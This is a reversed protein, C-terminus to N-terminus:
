WDGLAAALRLQAVNYFLIARVLERDTTAKLAQTEVVEFGSGTGATFRDTQALHATQAADAARQRAPIAARSAILQARAISIEARAEDESRRARLNAQQEVFRAEKLQALAEFSFTFTLLGWAQTTDKLEDLEVGILREGVGLELQPGVVSWWAARLTEGAALARARATEVDPRRTPEGSAADASRQLSAVETERPRLTNSIPLRLLTALRVGANERSAKAQPLDALARAADVEARAAEAGSAVGSDARAQAISVFRAADAALDEAIREEAASLVLAQHALAAELMAVRQANAHAHDGATSDLKSARMRALAEGPNARLTFELSPQYRSFEVNDQLDGFSGVQAGNLHSAGARLTFQPLMAGRARDVRAQSARWQAAAELVAYSDTRARQLVEDLGILTTSEIQSQAPSLESAPAAAALENPKDPVTTTATRVSQSDQVVPQAVTPACGTSMALMAAFVPATAAIRKRSECNM